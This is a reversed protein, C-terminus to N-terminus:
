IEATDQKALKSPSPCTSRSYYAKLLGRHLYAGKVYNGIGSELEVM